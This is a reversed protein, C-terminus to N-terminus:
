EAQAEALAANLAGMMDDRWAQNADVVSYTVVGGVLKRRVCRTKRTPKAAKSLRSPKVKGSTVRRFWDVPRFPDRADSSPAAATQVPSSSVSLAATVPEPKAPEPQAPRVKETFGAAELAETQALQVETALRDFYEAEDGVLEGNGILRSLEARPKSAAEAALRQAAEWRRGYEAAAQLEPDAKLRDVAADYRPTPVRRSSRRRKKPQVPEPDAPSWDIGHEALIRQVKALTGQVKASTGRPWKGKAVMADTLAVAGISERGGLWKEGADIKARGTGSAKLAHVLQEATFQERQRDANAVRPRRKQPDHM